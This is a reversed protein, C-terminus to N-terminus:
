VSKKDQRGKEQSFLKDFHFKFLFLKSLVVVKIKNGTHYFRKQEEQKKKKEEEMKRM